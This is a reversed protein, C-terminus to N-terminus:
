DLGIKEIYQNFKRLDVEILNIFYIQNDIVQTKFEIVEANTKKFFMSVKDIPQSGQFIAIRKVM